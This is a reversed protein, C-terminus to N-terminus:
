QGNKIKDKIIDKYEKWVYKIEKHTLGFQDRCHLYFSTPPSFSILLSLSLPFSEISFPFFINEEGYDIKTGRVISGIVKDLYKKNEM